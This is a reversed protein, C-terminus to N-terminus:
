PLGQFRLPPLQVQTSSVSEGRLFAQVIARYEPSMLERSGHGCHSVRIHSANAFQSMLDDVNSPPTRVDLEGSVFLIPVTCAVPTRLWTGIDKTPFDSCSEPYHPALIADGLLNTPNMRERNLQAIRSPSGGSACDMALPMATSSPRHNDFATEALDSFDGRKMRLLAAPVPLRTRFESLSRALYVQLDFPGVAVDLTDVDPTGSSPADSDPKDSDPTESSPTGSSPAFSDTVFPVRVPKQELQQLLEKVTALVDPLSDKWAPATEIQESLVELQRQTEAPLKWTHDPGEVNLIIAREVHSAHERLYALGLHSGYSAGWLAIEDLGLHLRLDELDQVSERTNYAALDVGESVWHDRCAEAAVEFAEIFTARTVPEDLPIEHTFTPGSEGCLHPDSLGTGRQDLGIVDRHELLRIQPHSAVVSAFEVGSAGPGGALFFVPPLPNPHATEYRVFALEITPSKEDQRNEPVNFRGLQGEITRGGPTRGFYPEFYPEFGAATVRPAFGVGVVALLCVTAANVGLKWRSMRPWSGSSMWALVFAACPLGFVVLLIDSWPFTLPMPLDSVQLLGLAPYIGAPVALLCGLLALYGARAASLTRLLTPSGGITHLLHHDNASEASSLATAVFLIILGTALCLLLVFNYSNRLPRVELLAASISAQGLEAARDSTRELLAEDVVSDFRLLFPTTTSRLPPGSHLGYSSLADSSLAGSSLLYRPSRVNEDTRVFHVPLSAVNRKGIWSQLTIFAPETVSDIQGAESSPVPNSSNKQARAAGITKSRDNILAVVAGARFASIASEAGMTRLLEESGCAVWDERTPAIGTPPVVRVPEAGAYTAHLPTWAMVAFESALTHAVNEANPGEVFIQDTRYSAPLADLGSQLSAVLIGMTVSMAMGALIATVVPGNRTRFRGADRLALRWPLPLPAAVKALVGLLWPSILGFGLLGFLSGFLIMTGSVAPEAPTRSALALLGLGTGAAVVGIVFTARHSSTPPRRGRLAERVPITTAARAPIWAALGATVVGLIVGAVVGVFSVEFPGNIRGNWNDLQPHVLAAIAIGILAGILSAVFAMALTSVILSRLIDRPSAGTAGLLGIEYRRRQFSIFFASAIVLGAEAFGITGLLVILQSLTPDARFSTRRSVRISDSELKLALETANFASDEPDARGILLYEKAPYEVAAPTRLVIPANQDESDVVIGTIIRKTGYSLTVSDGLACGLGDLLTPSLAVESPNRPARGELIHVLGSGIPQPHTQLNPDAQLNPRTRPNPRAQLNPRVRSSARPSELHLPDIAIMKSRLKRGAAQVTEQSVFFRAREAEEPIADLIRDYNGPDSPVEVLLAAAGMAKQARETPTPEIMKAIAAGGVVAAVPVAILLLLLASRGRHRRLDRWELRLLAPLALIWRRSASSSKSGSM